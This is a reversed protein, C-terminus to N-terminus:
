NSLRITVYRTNETADIVIYGKKGVYDGICSTTPIIIKDGTNYSEQMASFYNNAFISNNADLNITINEIINYQSPFTLISQTNNIFRITGIQSNDYINLFPIIYSKQTESTGALGEPVSQYNLEFTTGDNLEYKGFILIDNCM